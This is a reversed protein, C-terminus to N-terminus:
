SPTTARIVHGSLDCASVVTDMGHMSNQISRRTAYPLPPPPTLGNAERASPTLQALPWPALATNPRHTKAVSTTRAPRAPGCRAPGRRTREQWRHWPPRARLTAYSAYINTSPGTNRKLKRNAGIGSQAAARAGRRAARRYSSKSIRTVPDSRPLPLSPPLDTFGYNRLLVGLVAGM